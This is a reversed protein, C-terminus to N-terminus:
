PLIPSAGSYGNAMPRWHLTQLYCPCWRGTSSAASRCSSTPRCRPTGPSGARTPRPPVGAAPSRSGPPCAPSGEVALAFAAAGAPGAGGAEPRRARRPPGLGGGRPVRPSRSSPSRACRVRMSRMGPVVSCAAGFVVPFCLAAMVVGSALLGRRWPDPAPLGAAAVPRLHRPRCRRDRPLLGRPDDRSPPLPPAPEGALPRGPDRLERAHRRELAPRGPVPARRPLRPDRPVPTSSPSCPWPSRPPPVWVALRARTLFRGRGALWRNVLLVALPFHVLVALYAGGSVHLAYFAAFAAARGPTPRDLLRDFTWLVAPIWQM